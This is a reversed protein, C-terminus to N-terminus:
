ALRSRRIGGPELRPDQTMPGLLYAPNPDLSEVLAILQSIEGYSRGMRAPWTTPWRFSLERWPSCRGASPPTLGCRALSRM